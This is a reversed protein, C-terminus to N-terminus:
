PLRELMIYRETEEKAYGYTETLRGVVAPVYTRYARTFDKSVFIYDPVRDLGMFYYHELLDPAFLWSSYTGFPKPYTALYCWTERTFFLIRGDPKDRYVAVEAYLKNYFERYSDSTYLGKKPGRDITATLQDPTKEWYVHRLKVVAQMSLQTVLLLAVICTIGRRVGKSDGATERVLAALMLVTGVCSVALAMHMCYYSQNSSLHLTLAYLAGPVWLLFFVSKLPKQALLYAVPGLLALPFMVSNYTFEFLTPCLLGFCVLVLLAAVALYWVRREKRKSDVLMTTLLLAYPLGVALLYNSDAVFMVRVSSTLQELMSRGHEPDKFLFPLAEILRILSTHSLMYVVFAVLVAAAGGSFLLWSRLRGRKILVAVSGLLYVAVLYPSCLCAMAYMVGCLVLVWVRKRQETVLLVGVLTVLQLGMTNYSLAMMDYPTFLFFLLAAVVASLGYGAKKLRVFIVLTVLSQVIIYIYRFALLIGDTTGTLLMYLRFFPLLLLGSLQSLHWEDVLLTDGLSLREPVTLYFAEDNGYAGYRVKWLLLALAAGFLLAFLVVDRRRSLYVRRWLQM